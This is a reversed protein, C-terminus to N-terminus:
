FPIEDLDATEEEDLIGIEDDVPFCFDLSGDDDDDMSEWGALMREEEDQESRFIELLTKRRQESLAFIEQAYARM